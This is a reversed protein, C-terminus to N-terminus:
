RVVIELRPGVRIELRRGARHTDGDLTYCIDQESEFVVHEAVAEVIKRESVKRGRYIRPLAAAFAAASCKIGLFHFSHPREECRFFPTFGLGIQHVTGAAMATYVTDPWTRGDVTVRARFPRFLRQALPGGVLASGVGRVLVRFATSPCPNGTGYYADLFNHILGNGFIFGYRGEVLMTDRWVTEFPIGERLKRVLNMIIGAPSGKIGCANSITNMTGGRLFAIKPLPEDGYEEIFATITVHNSGDGGNIGLVEIGESKFLRAMQHIDDIDRTAAAQGQSGVIYGLSEMGQPNKRNQRSHPNNIIGIGPV